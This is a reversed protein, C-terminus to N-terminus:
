SDRKTAREYTLGGAIVLGLVIAAWGDCTQGFVVFVGGIAMSCGVVALIANQTAVRDSM